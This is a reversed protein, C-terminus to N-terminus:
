TLNSPASLFVEMKGEFHICKVGFPILFHDGKKVKYNNVRGEGSTITALIFPEDSQYSAKGNVLAKFVKYYKCEYLKTVTNECFNNGTDLICDKAAKAPVTIVDLSKSIHLQRPKGNSLRDYDYVRYTLDSNQQTELILLGGKIAHVTGPDIQIFDGKKVPIERILESWRGQQIMDTLEQRTRANHGIVLTANEQCDLVYWCETKGYSGNENIKAYADDPHVQISLDERADIIKVLLPFREAQYNGFLAPKRDWLESLKLGAYVGDRVTSEGSQHASIGWCEGVDKGEVSYGFEDRLRTGGWINHSFYPKLFVISPNEEENSAIGNGSSAIVSVLYFPLKDEPHTETLRIEVTHEKEEGHELVTDLVLKDGWTEEFNADLIIPHETDEDLILEAVPAPLQMTKRYQVGICSGTVQFRISAGEKDAMWGNKFIDTISKQETRDAEFGALEPTCNNNRYRVSNEYHNQTIPSPMEQMGIDSVQENEVAELFGTIVGAVLSHGYDNPHLGDSTLDQRDIKGALIEPYITDQMSVFPLNYHRAVQGHVRQANRGDAYFINHVLLVAPKWAATYIKRVLGEYTELYHENDEDNVSFEVIVFDPRGALLDSEVRACGFQSDTAGIGANLYVFEAKPFTHCWWEYVRYAYCLEPASSLCGQTISGGIFGITLKEGQKARQFMNKLRQTNM